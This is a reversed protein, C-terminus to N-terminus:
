FIEPCWPARTTHFIRDAREVAGPSKEVVDGVEAMRAFSIGGLYASGLASASFVLDAPETTKQARAEGSDLRYRGTNWPCFADELEFVLSDAVPYRRAALARPVDVIRVWLADIVTAHLRRPEEMLLFLPHDVPINGMKVRTVLDLDCLYRLAARTGRPTAGVAEVVHATGAPLQADDFAFRFRYLAYAEVQGDFTFVVRQLPGAGARAIENDILRRKIWWTPSRSPMGPSFRRAQEWVTPLIEVARTEDVFRAVVPPDKGVFASRDREISLQMAFSALGYGYRGYISSESAWLAAIPQGRSFAGDLHARMLSRLVGQRRHTQNVGVMTLGATPVTLGGSTSMDFAFSGACGVIDKGDYAAIRTDLEPLGRFRDLRDASPVMGFASILPSTFEDLLEPGVLRIEIAM